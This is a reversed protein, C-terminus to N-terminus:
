NFLGAWDIGMVNLWGGAEGTWVGGAVFVLLLLLLNKTAAYSKAGSSSPSISSFRPSRIRINSWLSEFQHFPVIMSSSRTYSSKKSENLHLAHDLQDIEQSKHEVQKKFCRDMDFSCHKRRIRLKSISLFISCISLYSSSMSWVKKEQTWVSIKRTLEEESKRRKREKWAHAQFSNSSCM